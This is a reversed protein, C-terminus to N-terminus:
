YRWLNESQKLFMSKQTFIRDEIKAKECLEKDKASQFEFINNKLGIFKPKHDPVSTM